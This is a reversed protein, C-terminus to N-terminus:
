VIRGDILEKAKTFVQNHTEFVQELTPEAVFDAGAICTGVVDSIGYFDLRGALFAAVAAENAANLACPINGGREIADFALRLAPFKEMDPREFSISGLSFFDLKKNNLPLRQPFGLAFQIPERMDPCGMQAVVAGDEFEIMSHIVSEPQVVVNIDSPAMDFLWKAEIVEFGKNMMTACDITIKNGMKWTPHKLAQEAKVDKLEDLPVNRLAGGSATILIRKVDERKCNALCKAIAVHESDIPYLKGKGKSLISNIVTGGAVLAEKNALCLIKDRKLALTAPEFGSFGVLADVCMDYEANRTLKALGKKGYYVTVNPFEKHIKEANEKSIIFISKVDRHTKLIERAKEFNKGVSFAVLTFRDMAEDIIDIAQGGISGSAGLLLVKRMLFQQEM